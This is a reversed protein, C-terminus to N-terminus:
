LIVEDYNEQIKSKEKKIKLPKTISNGRQKPLKKLVEKSAEYADKTVLYEKGTETCRVWFEKDKKLKEPKVIGLKENMRKKVEKASYKIKLEEKNDLEEILDNRYQSGLIISYEESLKLLDENWNLGKFIPVILNFINRELMADWDINDRKIHDYYKNSLALKEVNKCYIIFFRNGILQQFEPILKQTEELPIQWKPTTKYDELKKNVKVPLSIERIDANKMEEIKDKIYQIINEKNEDDLIKDYLQEQFSKVWASTDKRKMQIGKTEIKQGTATELRGRYRCLAQIFISSFFGEWDFKIDVKDNGYKDMAWEISWDNLQETIDEKGDHFISDTDLYRVPYGAKQAKNEIFRLLDRALFTITNTVEASYLRFFPLGLVGFCQGIPILGNEGAFVTHNKKTTCCYVKGNYRIKKFNKYNIQKNHNAYFIRYIEPEYKIWVNNNGVSIKLQCIQKAMKESTTSFRNLNRKHNGDGLYLHKLFSQKEQLPLKFIFLPIFKNRANYISKNRIYDGNYCNEKLYYYLIESCITIDKTADTFNFNLQNLIHKILKRNEINKQTITVRSCKGRKSSIYNKEQNQYISGESLYWGLFKAFINRKIFLPTLKAKKRIQGFIKWGKKHLYLLDQESIDVAKIKRWTHFNMVKNDIIKFKFINRNKVQYRTKRNPHRIYIYGDYKQVINFFSFLTIYKDLIDVCEISPIQWSNLHTKLNFLEEATQFKNKSKIKKGHVHKTLFKHDPTVNILIGANKYQYLYGDFNYIQTDTITDIELNNNESNINYVKDGLCIDKINKLGNVTLINTNPHFCSNALAKRSEYAVSTIKYELSDKSITKLKEKLENKLDLVKKTLVPLIANENQKFYYTTQYNQTERSTVDIKIANECPSLSLNEPSLCFGIIQSPYDGSVDVKSLNKFIGTSDTRRYAGEVKEKENEQKKSPLVVNLNKAEALALIDIVKSNNSQWQYNRMEAPLDTWLCRSILRVEDFYEFINLKNNLEVLKKVDLINKKKAIEINTFDFDEEIEYGLEDNAVNMLAYSDKKFLTYKSYLGQFDVISIGAPYQFGREWQTQSIPSLKKPFDEGIRYFLYYYDFDINYATLCDPQLKKVTSCFDELMEFETKYDGICFTKYKQTYNDYITIVSVPSEAKQDEKPHPLQKCEVEIDMFLIRTKSKEFTEIKDLIYRKPYSLDAEYADPSRQKRIDGPKDCYIKRLSEGFLGKADAQKDSTKEYYYSM